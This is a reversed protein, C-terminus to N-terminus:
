CTMSFGGQVGQGSLDWIAGAASEERLRVFDYYGGGTEQAAKCIAAIGFGEVYPTRVPLCSQQVKRAIQLEQKIRDDQAIEKIYEPVFDPLETTDAGRFIMVAGLVLGLVTLILFLYFSFPDPSSETVWDTSTSVAM